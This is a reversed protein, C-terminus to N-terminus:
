RRRVEIPPLVIEDGSMRLILRYTGRSVDDLRFEGLADLTVVRANRADVDDDAQTVLEVMGSAGPRLVQGALAFRDATPTIRLDIDCGRAAFLLHRTESPAARVGLALPASAWSDFSLLAAVRNFAAQVPSQTRAPRSAPWMGIAAKVLLPPADPLAAARQVLGAFEVDTLDKAPEM